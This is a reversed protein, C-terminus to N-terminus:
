ESDSPQTRPERPVAAESQLLQSLSLDLQSQLLRAMSDFAGSDAGILEHLRQKARDRVRERVAAFWRSITSQSVKYSTGIKSLSMGDVLHLRILLRQRPSLEALAAQLAARFEEAYRSRLYALEPDADPSLHDTLADGDDHMPESRRVTTLALRQAAVQVWAKLSGRGLYRAIRPESGDVGLLLRLRLAQKLEDLRAASRDVDRVFSRLSKLHQSEFSSLAAPMGLSCGCALYLDSFNLEALGSESGLPRHDLVKALHRAFQDRTLGLEPYRQEAESCRAAFSSGLTSTSELLQAFSHQRTGSAGPGPIPDSM